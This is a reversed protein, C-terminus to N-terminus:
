DWRSEIRPQYVVSVIMKGWSYKWHSTKHQDAWFGTPTTQGEVETAFKGVVGGQGRAEKRSM